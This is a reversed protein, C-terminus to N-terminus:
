WHTQRLADELLKESERLEDAPIATCKSYSHIGDTVPDDLPSEGCSALRLYDLATRGQVDKISADAGAHLAKRIYDVDHQTVLIMLATQGDKNQTNVKAGAKVLEDNWCGTLAYVML